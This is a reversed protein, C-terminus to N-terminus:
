RETTNLFDKYSGNQKKELGTNFETTKRLHEMLENDDVMLTQIKDSMKM